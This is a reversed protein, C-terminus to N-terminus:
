AQWDVPTQRLMWKLTNLLQVIRPHESKPSGRSIMVSDGQLNTVGSFIM